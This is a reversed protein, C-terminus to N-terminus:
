VKKHVLCVAYASIGQKQGTFGLGEETKAKVNVQSVDIGMAKALNERMKSIYPALKPDQCVITSDVNSILYEEDAIIKVTKELLGISSADKFGPDTDPFFDGISGKGVSGILADIVAHVLVDADSHGLLGTPHKIEVGGLILKRGSVLKHADYGIGVRM